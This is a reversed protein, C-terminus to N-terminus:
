MCTVVKTTTVSNKSIRKKEINTKKAKKTKLSEKSM